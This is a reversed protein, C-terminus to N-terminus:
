LTFNGSGISMEAARGLIYVSVHHIWERLISLPGRAYIYICERVYILRSISNM